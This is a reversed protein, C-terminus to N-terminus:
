SETCGFVSSNGSAIFHDSVSLRRFSDSSRSFNSERRVRNTRERGYPKILRRCEYISWTGNAGEKRASLWVRRNAKAICSPAGGITNERYANWRIQVKGGCAVTVLLHCPEPVDVTDGSVVNGVPGKLLKASM